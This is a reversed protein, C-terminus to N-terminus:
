FALGATAQARLQGAPTLAIRRQGESWRPYDYTGEVRMFFRGSVPVHAALGLTGQIVKARSEASRWVGNPAKQEYRVTSDVHSAALVFDFCPRLHASSHTVLALGRTLHKADFWRANASDPLTFSDTKEVFARLSLHSLVRLGLQVEPTWLKYHGTETGKGGVSQVMNLSLGLEVRSPPKPAPPPPPPASAPIPETTSEVTFDLAPQGSLSFWPEAIVNWNIEHQGGTEYKRVLLRGGETVPRQDGRNVSFKLTVVCRWGRAPDGLKITISEIGSDIAHGVLKAQCQDAAM